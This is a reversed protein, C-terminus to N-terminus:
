YFGVAGNTGQPFSWKVQLSPPNHNEELFINQNGINSFFINQNQRLFFIIIQNLTKTIYGLTLNQLFFLERKARCFFINQSKHQGVSFFNRFSVFFWLGGKLNFPRDRLRLICEQGFSTFAAAYVVKPVVMQQIHLSLIPGKYGSCCLLPLVFSLQLIQIYCSKHYLIQLLLM